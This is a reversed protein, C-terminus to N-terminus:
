KGSEWKGDKWLSGTEKLKDISPEVGIGPEDNLYYTGNKIPEGSVLFEDREVVAGVPYELPELYKTLSSLHASFATAIPGSPNHLSVKYGMTEIMPIAVRLESVGGCHKVDPMIVDYLGTSIVEHVDRLGYSTEGGAWQILKYEEYAARQEVKNDNSFTDELWYPTGILKLENILLELHGRNFRQHCDIAIKSIPVKDSLMQLRELGKVMNEHNSFPTVEDFPTCKVFSFGSNFAELGNKALSDPTRNDLLGRNLNAYLPIKREDYGGLLRYLPLDLSKAQIDWLAQNIGSWATSIYRNNGNLPYKPRYYDDMCENINLADKGILRKSITDIYQALVEDNSSGTVEGWGDIGEDTEILLWIWHDKSGEVLYTKINLIRM